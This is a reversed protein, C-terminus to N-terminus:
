NSPVKYSSSPQPARHLEMKTKILRYLNDRDDTGIRITRGRVRLKVCDFGWINITTGRGPVWHLGWGDLVTTRDPEVSEIDRYRIKAGFLPIPGFRVSLYEGEDRIMLYRFCLSLLFLLCGLVGLSVGAAQSQIGILYAAALQIVAVGIILWWWPGYQKHEYM